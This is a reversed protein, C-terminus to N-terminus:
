FNSLAGKQNSQFYKRHRQREIEGETVVNTSDTTKRYGLAHEGLKHYGLAHEGSIRKVAKIMEWSHIVSGEKEDELGQRRDQNMRDTITELNTLSPKFTKM